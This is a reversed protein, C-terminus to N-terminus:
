ESEETDPETEMSPIRSAALDLAVSLVGAADFISLTTPDYDIWNHETDWAVILYKVQPGDPIEGIV